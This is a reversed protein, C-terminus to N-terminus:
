DELAVPPAVRGNKVDEIAARIDDRRAKRDFTPTEAQPYAENGVEIFSDGFPNGDPRLSRRYSSLSDHLKRDGGMCPEISDRRISPAPFSSRSTNEARELKRHYSRGDDFRFWARGDPEGTLHSKTPEIAILEAM